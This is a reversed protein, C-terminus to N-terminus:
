GRVAISNDVHSARQRLHHLMFLIFPLVASFTLVALVILIPLTDYLWGGILPGIMRGLAAFSGVTGQIFGHKDSPTSASLITPVAPWVLLEGFTLLLMGLVFVFYSHSFMLCFFSLGFLPIGGVLQLTLSPFRKVFWNICPQFFVVALGNITWLMSYTSTNLRIFQMYVPVITMWQVYICWAIGYGILVTVIPGWHIATNTALKQGDRKDRTGTNSSPFYSRFIFLAIFFFILNGIALAIFIVLFSWHALLGGVATGIATGVNFIVYILNYGKRGGKPWARTVLANFVPFPVYSLFGFVTILGSYIWFNHQWIIFSVIVVISILTNVLLIKNAGFRDYLMGGISNGFFGALSYVFLVMGTVTMSKHLVSHFYIANVPWLLSFFVINVFVGIAIVWMQIPVGKVLVKIKNM